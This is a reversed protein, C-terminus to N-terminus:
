RLLEQLFLCRLKQIKLDSCREQKAQLYCLKRGIAVQAPLM